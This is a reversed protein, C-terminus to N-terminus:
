PIWVFESLNVVSWVIDEYTERWDAQLRPDAPAGDRARQELELAITTSEPTLHNSWTVAPLPSPPEITPWQNEPILRTAFGPTLEQILPAREAETPMRSLCRLFVEDILAEPSNASVALEALSSDKAARTLLVSAMSNALVGPQLVNPSTDRDTRPSQRSGSWGFAEMVDTVIRARPLGLSPRDRENALSAFMWARNPVGLTLRNSAPRRGDPDFTLEEVQMEQGSVAFLSDVVQEASMRRRDPAVFFRLESETSRNDGIAERQYVRSTLILRSLHTLDYDNIVFEQALWDLLEPHSPKRGEWDDPPEVIGAGIYKRWVRNVVVHAFRRNAPSTILAALRERSDDKKKVLSDLSKDDLPGAIDAFPWQPSVSEDPQLTVHILSERQQKEFFAAPVRSTMPVTVPKREFMAALSYLDRQKTSHYPSDHCRACQLEIGLFASAVIQGKAAMPADNNAAIGFGASGGEHPSGRLMILETVLQDLPKRDRLADHLFWRFPGTSNLSANILTPNEALVDQWYAMWHDAGRPDALLRDILVERKDPASDAIFERADKEGPIVGITDLYIRRLFASDDIVPPAAVDASNLQPAPWAAGSEVWSTLTAISEPSLGNGGPPMRDNPDTSHIRRILESKETHGPVVAPSESDGGKLAAELSNLLLGGKNRDGHCRFCNDRLIPLIDTHFRLSEERSSERSASIAHDVKTQLFADIPHDAARPVQPAPQQSVWQRAFDHRMTWYDNQSSAALRRREDDFRQMAAEQQDLASTVSADTLLPMPMNSGLLAYSTHDDTEVAICLEGPDARFSKGGILTELIILCRRDDGIVAEGIVQQQRHEAIRLGPLPAEMVPTMLEEGSPSGTLPRARLIIQGNVWLRSLGRVRMMFRHVGPSLDVEAAMRLLVPGKWSDRIGIDDFRQPLRDLLCMDTQWALTQQPLKENDNLWRDHSPMGEHLTVLVQGAQLDSLEPMVEPAPGVVSDVDDGVRRFRTSMVAADVRERYLAISDLSGRFSNGAAGARSSGIWIADNDVVPSEDTAGGMDWYGPQLKGDIWGLISEPEGFRYSVAIHHWSKGPLFGNSTTWRHWHKDSKEHANTPVTAFLFSVGARGKNERVRLAWNQNAAAFGKAGTRGKGIVYVNEGSHLEDVQVWAELTIEDGNTFDFPSNAGNDALKFYAGNGDLKVATNDPPFDPYEPPRPGPVDRHVGGVPHLPTSEESGFDWRIVPVPEVAQAAVKPSVCLLLVIGALTISISEPLQRHLCRKM